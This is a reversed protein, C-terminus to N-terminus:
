PELSLELLQPAGAVSKPPLTLLYLRTYADDPLNGKADLGRPEGGLARVLKPVTNSHGCVVLVGGDELSRCAEVIRENEAATAVEITLGAREALPAVTAQTRLYNTAHIATPRSEGLLRAVELARRRGRESLGPDQGGEAAKEAHRLFVITRPRPPPADGEGSTPAASAPLFLAYLLVFCLSLQLM